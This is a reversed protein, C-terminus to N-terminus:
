AWDWDKLEYDIIKKDSITLVYKGTILPYFYKYDYDYKNALGPIFEPELDFDDTLPNYKQIYEYRSAEGEIEKEVEVEFEIEFMVNLNLLLTEDSKEYVYFDTIQKESYSSKEIYGTSTEDRELDFSDLLKSKLSNEIVVDFLKTLINFDVNEEIWEDNIYEIISAQERVFDDLNKFYKINLNRAKTEELLEFALETKGKESFDSSNESIFAVTKDYTTEAFDLVTLWLLGDRFQQGNNDLPKKRQIARSVLEPLYENKYSIINEDSIGLKNNLFEIYKNGEEEINLEHFKEIEESLLTRNLKNLSKEYDAICELLFRKYLGKVEELVISPLILKSNTKALYDKLIEFNKNNLKLDKRIINADIITDM